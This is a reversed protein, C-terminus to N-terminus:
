TKMSVQQQYLLILQTEDILDNVYLTFSKEFTLNHSNTTKHKDRLIIKKM